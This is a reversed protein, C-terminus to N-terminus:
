SALGTGEAAHNKQIEGPQIKGDEREKALKSLDVRSLSHYEVQLLSDRQKLLAGRNFDLALMLGTHNAGYQAWMRVNNEVESLCLLFAM